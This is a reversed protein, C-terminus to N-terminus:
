RRHVGGAGCWALTGKANGEEGGSGRHAQMGLGKGPPHRARRRTSTQTHLTLKTCSGEVFLEGGVHRPPPPVGTM